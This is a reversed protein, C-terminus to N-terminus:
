LAWWLFNNAYRLFSRSRKIIPCRKGLVLWSIEGWASSRVRELRFGCCIKSRWSMSLRNSSSWYQFWGTMLFANLIINMIFLVSIPLMWIEKSSSQSWAVQTNSTKLTSEQTVKASDKQQLTSPRTTPVTSNSAWTSSTGNKFPQWSIPQYYSASETKKPSTM